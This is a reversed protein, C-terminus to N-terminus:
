SLGGPQSFNAAELAQFFKMYWFDDQLLHAIEHALVFALRDVGRRIVIASTWCVSQCSSAGTRSLLPYRLAWPDEQAIFIRPVVEPRRGAVQLVQAFIAHARAARPDAAPLLEEYNKQWYDMREMPHATAAVASLLMALTALSLYQFVL